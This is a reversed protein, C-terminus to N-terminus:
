FVKYVVTCALVFVIVSLGLKLWKSETNVSLRSGFYTGFIGTITVIIAPLFIIDGRWFYLTLAALSSFIGAFLSTAIAQHMKINMARLIPPFLTGGSGGRLGIILNSVFAGSFLNVPKPTIKKYIRPSIKNIYLALVTVIAAFFFTAAIFKNSLIGVFYTAVIIGLVGGITFIKAIDWNINKRQTYAGTISSFPIVFMSTAFANVIPMGTLVLLPVRVSGGGIGFMGSFVGTILGILVYSLFNFIEM